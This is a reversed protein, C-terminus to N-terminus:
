CTQRSKQGAVRANRLRALRKAGSRIGSSSLVAAFAEPESSGSLYAALAGITPHQFLALIPVTRGLAEELRSQMRVLLMSHGGLDFFNEHVGMPEMRLLEAWCGALMKELDNRPASIERKVAMAPKPLARRDLKGNSNLPLKELFVFYSPVMFDPLKQKLFARLEAGDQGCSDACVVYAALRKDGAAETALVATERVGPHSRLVAEIEGLEIRFGRIKVQHDMRGRYELSGDPLHRAQDGTRYLRAGPRGSFPDPVFKEATLGPKCLYGRAIGEGGIYLEGIVGPPVPQQYSDLIYTAKNALPRGITALATADRLAFTSYTTDESPGYLDFVRQINKQQYLEAVLDTSLPEGALNVTRVSGPMKGHHLLEAVLSPVSNVLTIRNEAAIEPLQLVNGALFITGGWSLPVFIEFISLDFSISTAALVGALDQPSFVSNAWFLLLAANRHEIVVGKPQGTSGSTYIVYAANEPDAAVSPDHTDEAEIESWKQSSLLLQRTSAPVRDRHREEIAVLAAETENLILSLRESPYGPDLPVYAGGAKLIALLMVVMEPRRDMCVGVLKEPGVGLRRLHHAMQNAKRNLDQYRLRQGNGCLALASPTRAAQAEFLQHICLGPFDSQTRNWGGIVQEFETDSLLCLDGIRKKSNTAAQRLLTELHRVMREVTAQELVGARFAFRGDLGTGARLAVSLDCKVTGTEIEQPKVQLGQLRWESDAAHELVLMVQFFPTHSLTREPRMAEVVKEFPVDQHAYAGLAADRVQALVEEMSPNGDLDCRLALTNVFFGILKETEPMTRGAIPTGVIITRQGSYRHLLVDLGALLAMFLTVGHRQAFAQIQVYLASELEFHVSGCLDSQIASRPGAAPLALIEGSDRLQDKWYALQELLTAEDLWERQWSSYDAYQVPLERLPSEKGARFADYLAALEKALIGISWGDSVIHHIVLVLIHEEPAIQLLAARLLRGQELDFPRRMQEMIIDEIELRERCDFVAPEFSYPEEIVQMPFEDQRPSEFRTRLAEHRRIIENLAREFARIDLPGTLSLRIPIHYSWSEPELRQLFWLRQQALGIPARDQCRRRLPPLEASRLGSSQEIYGALSAITVFRFISRLPLDLGFATKIRSVLQMALLSHGGRHFFNEQRGIQRTRLLKCWIDSLIEEVPTRPPEYSQQGGPQALHKELAKRDLKGSTLLPLKELFVFMAPAMYGPLRTEVLSRLEGAAPKQGSRPIIFASLKKGGSGDDVALVVAQSVDQHELLVAEIEPLEIRFGRIKVQDDNRGLFELNGDARYRVCDGTRYMRAGPSNVFPNPVFAAATLHPRRWYNRAVGDGGIYLEGTIGVPLPQQHQDLVYLSTNAVPRGIPVRTEGARCPVFTSQVTAETPGYTNWLECSLASHFSKVLEPKLAEAGCTVIRASTWQGISPHTLLVELMSPVVDSYTVEKQIVLRVLYDPDQEGGPEAVIIRAGYALPLFIELISADFSFSAKQLVRDQFNLGLAQGAWLIQNCVQRHEVAVGKPKGTSGSTYIVYALNEPAATSIIPSSNECAISQWQHALDIGALGPIGLAEPLPNQTLIIKLGADEAVFRLRESPYSPDLPVYASGAKLIGLLAILMEMGRELYVGILTEPRAGHRRLCRALQSSRADLEGYTLQREGADVAVLDPNQAAERAFLEHVCRTEYAAETRNWDFVIQRYEEATLLQLEAIRTEMASPLKELLDQFHLALRQIFEPELRAPNYNIEISLSPSGYAMVSLPFPDEMSRRVDSPSYRCGALAPLDGARRDEFVVITEFLPLSADIGSFQQIKVLPTCEFPRVDFSQIRLQRFVDLVTTEAEFIVRLPLTNILLGVIGSVGEVPVKRCARTAGFSVAAHGSYRHMLIAWCGQVLTNLTLEKERALAKLCAGLNEPVDVPQIACGGPASDKCPLAALLSAHEGTSYITKWYERGSEWNQQDLWEIFRSFQSAEPLECSGASCLAEYIRFVEELIITRSRGDLISHHSTFVFLSANHSLHLLALRALPPRSFDFQEALDRRLYERIRVSQESDSLRRLDVPRVVAPVGDQIVQVPEEMDKWRFAIRFAQHRQFVSQWAAQFAPINVEFNLHSTVQVVYIASEAILSDFLLGKQMTSLNMAIEGTTITM